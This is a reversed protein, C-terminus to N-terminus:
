PTAGIFWSGLPNAARYAANQGGIRAAVAEGWTTAAGFRGAMSAPLAEGAGHVVAQVPTNTMSAALVRTNDVTILRGEVSVVDVPAGVWGNARMSAAIEEVGNVSSQSFRIASSELTTAAGEAAAGAWEEGVPAVSAVVLGSAGVEVAMGGLLQAGIGALAAGGMIYSGYLATRGAVWAASAAFGNSSPGSWRFSFGEMFASGVVGPLGPTEPDAVQAVAVEPVPHEAMASGAGSPEATHHSRRAVYKTRKPNDAYPLDAKQSNGSNAQPEPIPPAAASLGIGNGDPSDSVGAVMDDAGVGADPVEADSVQAVFGSPDTWNTPNNYVYSYRNYAQGFTPEPIFPDPSIFRRQRPDYLRGRMNVLGFQDDEDQSTFGSVVGRIAQGPVTALAGMAQRM